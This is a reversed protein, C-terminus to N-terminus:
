RAQRRQFPRFGHLPCSLVQCNRIEDRFGPEIRDTFNDGQESATCGACTACMADVAKKRSTKGRFFRRVPNDMRSTM